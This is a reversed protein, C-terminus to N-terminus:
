RDQDAGTRACRDSSVAGLGGHDAGTSDDDSSCVALAVTGIPDFPATVSTDSTVSTVSTVIATYPISGAGATRTEDDDVEPPQRGTGPNGVSPQLGSVPRHDHDTVIRGTGHPNTVTGGFQEGAGVASETQDDHTDVTEPAAFQGFQGSEYRQSVDGEIGSTGGHGTPGRPRTAPEFTGLEQGRDPPDSHDHGVTGGNGDCATTGIPRTIGVWV